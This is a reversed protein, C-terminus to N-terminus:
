LKKAFLFREKKSSDLVIKTDVFGLTIAMAELDKIYLPHTELMLKGGPKLRKSIADLLRKHFENFDSVFLALHPEYDLVDPMIEPKESEPIYPPNSVVLDFELGDPLALDLDSVYFHTRDSVNYKEANRRSVTVAKESLDSLTVVSSPLLQTLSLGICGSGSCLDWIHIPDSSLFLEEKKKWLYDVLEETEPRPILVDESVLYEFKHFGKKGTIYAVPKRKSREVIRERYTDIEKQGLPMEFQSYLKIRPLNLLDSLIWEADVRPNPIEKKELFETSRKLYYLLTGPQEAM